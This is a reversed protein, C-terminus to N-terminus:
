KQEYNEVKVYMNNEFEFEREKTVFLLFFSSFDIHMQILRNSKKKEMMMDQQFFFYKIKLKFKEKLKM